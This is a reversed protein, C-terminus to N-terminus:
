FASGSTSSLATVGPANVINGVGNSASQKTTDIDFYSNAISGPPDQFGVLGGVATGGKVAGTAYTQTISGLSQLGVLGGIWSGSGTVAGTAYAQTISGGNQEGILGGVASGLGTVAGTAYAQTITGAGFGVLGGVLGHGNVAGSTYAQTIIGGAQVGVLGGINNGPSSVSTTVYVDAISGGSQYGVLGGVNGGGTVSGGVLGVQSIAGGSYGFLGAYNNAGINVTLNSITNGLGTFAGTFGNGSNLITGLGNTGLPTWGVVGTADLPKALAYNGTLATNINQLGTMDYVLSYTQSNISLSQGTNPTGTYQVGGAFSLTGGTGGDNTKLALGGAGAITMPANIAISHFADLTLTSSSSWTVPANVTIDGAQTGGSGTSVVVNAAGLATQLTTANIVSDNANATFVPGTGITDAGNSIIVNYPDLLLTGFTGKAASLDTFGTYALAAKGSVEAEGGNGGAPGGTASITGAFNTTQNSWVVVTGGNGSQTADAKITTAADITTTDATPVSGGGHWDGGIQVSGGGATGSADITAGQLAITQGTVTVNGGKSAHHRGGRSAVTLRGSVKVAGGAGGGIFIS